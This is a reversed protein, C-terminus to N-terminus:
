SVDTRVNAHTDARCIRIWQVGNRRNPRDIYTTGTVLISENPCCIVLLAM